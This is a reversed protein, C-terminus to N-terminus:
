AAVKRKELFDLFLERNYFATLNGRGGILKYDCPKPLVGKGALRSLQSVTIGMLEAMEKREILHEM